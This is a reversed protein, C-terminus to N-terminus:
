LQARVSSVVQFDLRHCQISLLPGGRFHPVAQHFENLLLNFTIRLPMRIRSIERFEDSNMKLIVGCLADQHQRIPRHNVTVQLKIESRRPCTWAM